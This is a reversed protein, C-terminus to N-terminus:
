AYFLHEEQDSRRYNFFENPQFWIAIEAKAEEVSASAHIVNRISRKVDNCFAYNHHCFDGRITGPASKAPETSGCLKRIVSICGIGDFVAAVVPGETIYDLLQNRIEDGHRVGIDEYTYHREAFSRDVQVMKLAILKIGTREIRGLIKSALGRRVGDPKVLVLCKELHKEVIKEISNMKLNILYERQLKHSNPSLHLM